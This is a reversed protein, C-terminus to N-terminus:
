AFRGQWERRARARESLLAELFFCLLGALLPLQFREEYRTYGEAGLEKEELGAIRDVLDQLETGGLTSRWYAGEGAAAQLHPADDAM